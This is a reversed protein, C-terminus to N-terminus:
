SLHLRYSTLPRVLCSTVSASFFFLSSSSAPSLVDRDYLTSVDEFHVRVLRQLDM